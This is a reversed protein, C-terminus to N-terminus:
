LKRAFDNLITEAEGRDHAAAAGVTTQMTPQANGVGPIVISTSMRSRIIAQSLLLIARKIAVPMTSLRAGEPHGFQLPAALTVTTTTTSAVTVIENQANIPDYLTAQMGAVLGYTNDLTLTSTAVVGAATLYSNHYGAVYDLTVYLRSYGGWYLRPLRVTNISEIVVGTMDVDPTLAASDYGWSYDSVSVIPSNPTTIILTGDRQVRVWDSFTEPTAALVMPGCFADAEGSAQALVEGLAQRNTAEDAKPVIESLNIGNPAAIFEDISIYPQHQAYTKLYPAFVPTSM